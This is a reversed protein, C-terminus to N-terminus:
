KFAAAKEGGSLAVWFVQEKQVFAVRDGKPSVAPSHGDALKRPAGGALPVVFIAQEAGDASNTPNPFEGKRNADGGRVFVVELGDPTFELDKIEQGDDEPYATVARGKRDSPGAVWVNRAGRANAVWAVFGGAPSETLDSPFPAALVQELTLGGRAPPAEATLSAALCLAGALPALLKKM